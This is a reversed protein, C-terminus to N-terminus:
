DALECLDDIMYNLYRWDLTHNEMKAEILMSYCEREEDMKKGESTNQFPKTVKM